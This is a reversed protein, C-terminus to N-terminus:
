ALWESQLSNTAAHIRQPPYGRVREGIIEKSFRQVAMKTVIDGTAQNPQQLDPTTPQQGAQPRQAQPPQVGQAEVPVCSLMFKMDKCLKDTFQVQDELQF